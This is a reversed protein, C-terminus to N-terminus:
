KTAATAGGEIAALMDETALVTAYVGNLVNVSNSHLEETWAACADDIMVAQYSRDAADRVASEVCGNTFVGCFILTKMEMNHLVYDINTGNFVGSCTKTFVLEDGQPAVDEVFAAEKSGPAFHFNANRHERSRDRGDQTMSQIGVHIVEIGARRCADQLARINPLVQESLRQAYYTTIDGDGRDRLQKLLGYDPHADGYQVDVVVLATHAAGFDPAPLPPYRRAFRERSVDTM